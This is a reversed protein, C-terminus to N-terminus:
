ENIIKGSSNFSHSDLMAGSPAFAYYGDRIYLVTASAMACETGDDEATYFYYWKGNIFQWGTLAYGKENFYYWKGDIFQWDNVPYSGDNKRYWWGTADKLWGEGNMVQIVEQKFQEWTRGYKKFYPNPDTHDTGGWKLRAEDHSILRDIGWGLRKLYWAAFQVGMEWTKRFMDFNTGECIELNVCYPNGNGVAWAKRDDKMCHYIAGTWDGVYQVAYEYGRSYLQWHNYASAGPNATSHICLYSPNASGHGDNCIKEIIEM